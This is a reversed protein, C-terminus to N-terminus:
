VKAGSRDFEAVPIIADPGCTKPCLDCGTCAGSDIDVFTLEKESGNPKVVTERRTVTIAPCGVALCNSCGNCKDAVVTFPPKAAYQDILVCPQNTIIVSTDDVKVEERLAKFLTPLEYPNVEHIREPKVGLSEVLKRFDVRPAEEGHIDLGTGPNNQGGTMGVTRNDLLLITANGRNYVMDLLGQMGMHLFTSDGIVGILRTKQDAEGRGKDLGHAVGMSAGM